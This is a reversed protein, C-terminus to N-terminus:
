ENMEERKRKAKERDRPDRNTVPRQATAAPEAKKQETKNQPDPPLDDKHRKYSEDAPFIRM